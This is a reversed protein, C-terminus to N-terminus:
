DDLRVLSVAVVHLPNFTSTAILGDVTRKITIHTFKNKIGKEIEHWIDNMIEDDVNQVDSSWDRGDTTHVIFRVRM